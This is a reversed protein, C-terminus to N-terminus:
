GDYNWDQGTPTVILNPEPPPPAETTIGRHLWDCWRSNDVGGVEASGSMYGSTSAKGDQSGVSVPAHSECYRTELIEVTPDREPQCTPCWNSALNPTDQCYNSM